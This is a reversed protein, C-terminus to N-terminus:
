RGIVVDGYGSVTHKADEASNRHSIACQMYCNTSCFIMDGDECSDQEEKSLFPMESVKKKIGSNMVVIDCHRCFKPKSRILSQINVAEEKDILCHFCSVIMAFVYSLLDCM